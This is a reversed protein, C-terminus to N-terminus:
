KSGSVQQKKFLLTHHLVTNKHKELQRTFIEKGCECRTREGPPKKNNVVALLRQYSEM